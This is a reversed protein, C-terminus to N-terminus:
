YCILLITNICSLLLKIVTIIININLNYLWFIIKIKM